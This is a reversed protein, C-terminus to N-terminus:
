DRVGSSRRPPRRNEGMEAGRSRYMRSVMGARWPACAKEQPPASSSRREGSSVADDRCANWETPTHVVSQLSIAALAQCGIARDCARHPQAPGDGEELLPGPVVSLMSGGFAGLRAISACEGTACELRTTQRDLKLATKLFARAATKTADAADPDYGLQPGHVVCADNYTFPREAEANILLGGTGEHIACNRVSEYTPSVAAPQAGLPNDFAHSATAYETLVVDRGAASEAVLRLVRRQGTGAGLQLGTRQLLLLRPRLDVDGVLLEQLPLRVRELGGIVEGIDGLPDTAIATTGRRRRRHRARSPLNSPQSEAAEADDTARTPERPRISRGPPQRLGAVPDACQELLIAAADRM